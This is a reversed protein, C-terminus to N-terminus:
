ETEKDPHRKLNKAILEEIVKIYRPQCYDTGPIHQNLIWVARKLGRRFGQELGEEYAMGKHKELYEKDDDNM